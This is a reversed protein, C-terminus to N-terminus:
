LNCKIQAKIKEFREILERDENVIKFESSALENYHPVTDIKTEKAIPHYKSHFIIVNDVKLMECCKDHTTLQTLISKLLDRNYNLEMKFGPHTVAIFLTHEKIYMFAIAKQWKTSLLSLYKTYCEQQKLFKFQPQNCLHSLIMSVKKM